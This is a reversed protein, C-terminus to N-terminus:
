EQRSSRARILAESSRRFAGFRTLSRRIQSPLTPSSPVFYYYIGAPIIRRRRPPPRETLAEIWDRVDILAYREYSDVIFNLCIRIMGFNRARINQRLFRRLSRMPITEETINESFEEIEHIGEEGAPLLLDRNQDAWSYVAQRNERREGSNWINFDRNIQRLAAIYGEARGM